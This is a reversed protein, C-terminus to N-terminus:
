IFGLNGLTKKLRGQVVSVVVAVVGGFIATILFIDLWDRWGVLAGVASMLKVDGAGVAHLLYMVLYVGFALALGEFTFALGAARHTIGNLGFGLLIGSASVWNPIRRYRVDFAAAVLVIALLVARVM